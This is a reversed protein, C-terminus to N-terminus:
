SCVINLVKGPVYIVKKVDSSGIARIVNEHSLALDKIHDQSLDPSIEITGRLKGNVQIAQTISDVKLFEPNAQPWPTNVLSINNGLHAWLEECLHPAVPNLLRVLIEIAEKLTESTIGEQTLADAIGNSFTRLRAIYQNLHFQDLDRTVLKITQHTLRRLALDHESAQTTTNACIEAAEQVLTWLRNLYKWVGQVGTETWELDREPPSDSIVFLRATDVGYAEIIEQPAVLNKKSKSMKESRGVQVPQDDSLRFAKDGKKMIEDPYLWAGDQSRYTEHCVMGQTLLSKFPEEHDQYGCKKLARTFFRAYLLHLVAHEVGGIYQDVPMWANVIDRDFAKNKPQSIFRFFYWSSEFFTDLTDTERLAPKGCSPCSTHKWTPHHDLPNGPKDFTVDEPLVIPLNEEKEPVVGCDSCHVFPIPCGWYRQRSVGWDRLRFTVASRGHGDKELHTNVAKKAEEISLGNLFDSAYLVGDGKDVYAEGDLAFTEPSENKPHVVIKIPLKYKQAVEYDREDHAPVGMVAGTGYDMLVYNAVLVPVQTNTYPVTVKLGTDFAQKEATDIAEQTVGIKQCEQIFDRLKPNSQAVRESIPHDPAIALFTVGFLTDQRTTFVEISEQPNDSLPFQIYSGESRGIWNRQMTIVKEPWDTLTDLGDVLDQAFDTIKLYWQSMKRREVLVGSRWGCGNVVQENALVTHEVPDWNVYSEKRSVLGAKYFDIFIKQEHGYYDPACTTVEQDWDFTLGLQKFEERMFAINEYTWKAPHVKKEIAANEAPLGFADWGMPHLVDFGCAKKYRACVDGIVYNRVHGMHLRGSPYPFMELVYYKKAPDQINTKFANQSQWHERWKPETEKFNYRTTKLSM